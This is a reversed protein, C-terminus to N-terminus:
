EGETIEVIEFDDLDEASVFNDSCFIGELIEKAEDEDNAEIRGHYIVKFIKMLKGQTSNIVM